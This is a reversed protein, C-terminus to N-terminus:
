VWALVREKVWARVEADYLELTIRGARVPAPRSCSAEGQSSWAPDSAYCSQLLERQEADLAEVSSGLGFQSAPACTPFLLSWVCVM